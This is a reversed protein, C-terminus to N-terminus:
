KIAANVGPIDIDTYEDLEQKEINEKMRKQEEKFGEVQKAVKRIDIINELDYEGSASDIKRRLDIEERVSKTIEKRMELLSNFLHTISKVKEEFFRIYRADLSTPILRDINKKIVDLEEIMNKIAARHETFEKLLSEIYKSDVPKGEL